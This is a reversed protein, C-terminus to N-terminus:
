ETSTMVEINNGDPDEFSTVIAFGHDSPPRAQVGNAVLREYVSQVDSTYFVMVPSQANPTRQGPWGESPHIAFHIGGIECGYHLPVGQHVEDELPFGLADRYFSALGEADDSILLLAGVSDVLV